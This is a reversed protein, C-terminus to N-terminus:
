KNLINVVNKLEIASNHNNMVFIDGINKKRKSICPPAKREFGHVCHRAM